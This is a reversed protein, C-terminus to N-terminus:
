HDQSVKHSMYVMTLMCFIFAQISGIFVSFGQWVLTPLVAVLTGAFGTALSGALLTLLIEGAFINGYLRLGLTLTNAFEEIIKLPFLFWMPKFFGKGYEKFGNVRVGYYHSLGVVMAALTLTVVPDATPSKWWLTHDYTIAFPLGIMNSIFVYLLLTIGLVHFRGGDKWAMNSNIINRVFDMVWEFFNQMGTPKMALRRTSIVAIVFVIASVVTIMLINSLNFTLGMFKVLPAGHDM